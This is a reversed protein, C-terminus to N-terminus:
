DRPINAAKGCGNWQKRIEYGCTTFASVVNLSNKSGYTPISVISDSASLIEDSLGFRENGLVIACPFKFEIQHLLPAGEVTELSVIHCDNQKLNNIANLTTKQQEWTILQDTGLASKQVSPNEPTATYGCLQLNEIGLCESTRFIGGTNFASRINDLIVTVPMTSSPKTTTDRTTVIFDEDTINVLGHEREVPVILTYLQSLDTDEQIHKHIRTIYPISLHDLKDLSELFTKLDRLLQKRKAVKDWAKEIEYFRKLILQIARNKDINGLKDSVTM